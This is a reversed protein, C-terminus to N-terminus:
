DRRGRWRLLNLTGARKSPPPPMAEIMDALKIKDLFHRRVKWAILNRAWIPANRRGLRWGKIAGYKAKGDFLAELQAPTPQGPILVEIAAAILNPADPM